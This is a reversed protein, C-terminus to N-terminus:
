PTITGDIPDDDLSLDGLESGGEAENSDTEDEEDGEASDEGHNGRQTREDESSSASADDTGANTGIGELGGPKAKENAHIQVETVRVGQSADKKGEGEDEGEDEDEDLDSGLRSGTGASALTTDASYVSENAGGESPAHVTSADEGEDSDGGSSANKTIGRNARPTEHETQYPVNQTPTSPTSAVPNMRAAGVPIHLNPLTAGPMAAGNVNPTSGSPPSGFLSGASGVGPTPAPPANSVLQVGPIHPTSFPVGPLNPTTLSTSALPSVYSTTGTRNSAHAYPHSGYTYSNFTRSRQPPHTPGLQPTPPTSEQQIPTSPVSYPAPSTSRLAPPVSQTQARARGPRQPVAFGGISAGASAGAAALSCARIELTRVQALGEQGPSVSELVAHRLKVGSLALKSMSSMGSTSANPGAAVLRVLVETARSGAQLTLAASTTSYQAALKEMAVQPGAHKEGDTPSPPQTGATTPTTSTSAAPSIMVTDLPMGRERPEGSFLTLAALYSELEHPARPRDHPSTRLARPLEMELTLNASAPYAIHFLLWAVQVPGVGSVRLSRLRALDARAAPDEDGPSKYVPVAGGHLALETLGPNARLLATLSALSLPPTAPPPKLTLTLLGHPFPATPALHAHTLSLHRLRALLAPPLAIAHEDTYRGTLTLKELQTQGAIAHLFKEAHPAGTQIWLQRLRPVHPVLVRALPGDRADKWLPADLRVHIPLRRSYRLAWAGSPHRLDIRTWLAPHGLM